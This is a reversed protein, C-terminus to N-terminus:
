REVPAVCGFEAFGRLRQVVHGGVEGVLVRGTGAAGGRVPAGEHLLFGPVGGLLRYLGPERVPDAVAVRGERYTEVQGRVGGHRAPDGRLQFRKGGLCRRRRRDRRPDAVVVKFAEHLPEFGCQGL